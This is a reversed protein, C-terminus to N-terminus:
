IHILSLKYAEVLEIVGQPVEEAFIQGFLLFVFLVIVKKM